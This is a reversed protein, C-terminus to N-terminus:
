GYQAPEQFLFYLIELKKVQYELTSFHQVM